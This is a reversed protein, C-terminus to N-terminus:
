SVFKEYLRKARQRAEESNLGSYNILTDVFKNESWNKNIAENILVYLESPDIKESFYLYDNEEVLSYFDDLDQDTIEEDSIDSLTEKLAKRSRQRSKEIGMPTSVPSKLFSSMAKHYYRIQSITLNKSSGVIRGKKIRFDSQTKLLENLKKAAYKNDLGAKYLRKLKQNSKDILIDLAHEKTTVRSRGTVKRRPM